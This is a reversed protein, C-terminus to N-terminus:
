FVGPPPKPMTKVVDLIKVLLKFPIVLLTSLLKFFGASAMGMTACGTLILCAVILFCLLRIKTNALKL